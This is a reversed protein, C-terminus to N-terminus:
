LLACYPSLGGKSRSALVRSYVPFLASVNSPVFLSVKNSMLVCVDTGVFSRLSPALVLLLCCCVKLM